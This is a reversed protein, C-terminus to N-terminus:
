SRHANVKKAEDVIEAEGGEVDEEVERDGLM